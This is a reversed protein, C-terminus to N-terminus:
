PFNCSNYSLLIHGEKEWLTKNHWKWKYNIKLVSDPKSKSEKPVLKRHPISQSWLNLLGSCRRKRKYLTKLHVVITTLLPLLLLAFRQRHRDMWGVLLALSFFLVALGSWVGFVLFWSCSRAFVTEQFHQQSHVAAAATWLWCQKRKKKEKKSWRKWM